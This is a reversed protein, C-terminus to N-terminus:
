GGMGVIRLLPETFLPSAVALAAVTFGRAAWDGREALRLRTELLVLAPQLLFFLLMVAALAAGAAVAVMYAHMLASFLFALAIGLHPRRRRALPRFCNTDLWDRVTLNWRAGWFEAVTRALAPERHLPPLALGAAGAVVATGAYVMGSFSYAFVLGGIWRLPFRTAGPELAAMTVLRAGALALLAHLLTRGLEPRDIRRAAARIRRTDVYCWAHVVRRWPGIPRRARALDVVRALGVVAGIAMGARVLPPVPALAPVALGSAGILLAVARRVAPGTALLAALALLLLLM